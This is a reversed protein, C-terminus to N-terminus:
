PCSTFRESDDVLSPLALKLSTSRGADAASRHQAHGDEEVQLDREDADLGRDRPAKQEAFLRRQLVEVDGDLVERAPFVAVEVVEAGGFLVALDGVEGGGFVAVDARM